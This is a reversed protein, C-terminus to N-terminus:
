VTAEQKKKADVCLNAFDETAVTKKGLEALLALTGSKLDKGIAVWMAQDIASKDEQAAYSVDKEVHSSVKINQYNGLNITIECHKSIRENQM